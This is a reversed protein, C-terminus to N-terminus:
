YMRVNPTSLQMELYRSQQEVPQKRQLRTIIGLQMQQLRRANGFCTEM